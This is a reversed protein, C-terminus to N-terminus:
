ASARIASPEPERRRSRGGELLPHPAKAQVRDALLRAARVHRLAPAAPRGGKMTSPSTQVRPQRKRATVLPRAPRGTSGAEVVEDPDLSWRPHQLEAPDGGMTRLYSLYLPPLPQRAEALVDALMEDTIPAARSSFGPARSDALALFDGMDM